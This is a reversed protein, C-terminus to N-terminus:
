NTADAEGDVNAALQTPDPEVPAVGDFRKELMDAFDRVRRVYTQAERGRAYGYRLDEHFAPDEILPLVERVESWQNPNKGLRATLARADMVHGWGLNYSAAAFWWRDEGTITEPMRDRLRKLYRAGGRTSELTDLRNAVGLARATPLTLMMMGRVGTPSRAEPNWHSEQYAVAALLTWPIEAREAEAEFLDRYRPLETEMARRFAAAHAPEVSEPSFGYYREGLQVVLDRTARRGFWSRLDSELAASRWSRGEGVAWSLRREVPLTVAAVVGGYYRHSLDLQHDDALTCEARGASVDELLVDVTAGPEERWRVAHGQAELRQLTAAYSSAEAVVIEAADLTDLDAPARGGERCVVVERVTDYSPAFRRQLLSRETITLGAAAIDAVGADAAELVEAISTRVIVELDVGLHEAYARALDYELGAPGERGQYYTTPSNLTVVRLAGRAHIEGLLGGHDGGGFSPALLVPPLLLATALARGRGYAFAIWRFLAGIVHGNEEHEAGDSALTLALRKRAGSVLRKQRNFPPRSRNVV